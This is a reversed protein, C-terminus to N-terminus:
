LRGSTQLRMEEQIVSFNKYTTANGRGKSGKREVQLLCDPDKLLQDFWTSGRSWRECINKKTYSKGPVDVILIGKGAERLTELAEQINM